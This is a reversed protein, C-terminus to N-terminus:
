QSLEPFCRSRVLYISGRSDFRPRVLRGDVKTPLVYTMFGIELPSFTNYVSRLCSVYFIICRRFNRKFAGLLTPPTLTMFSILHMRVTSLALAIGSFCNEQACHIYCDALPKDFYVQLESGVIDLALMRFLYLMDTPKQLRKELAALLKRVQIHILPEMADLSAPVFVHAIRKQRQRHEERNQMQFVGRRGFLDYVPGKIYKSSPGYIDRLADVHTFTLENPGIRM